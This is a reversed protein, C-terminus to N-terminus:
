PPTRFGNSYDFLESNPILSILNNIYEKSYKTWFGSEIAPTIDPKALMKVQVHSLLVWVEQDTFTTSLHM